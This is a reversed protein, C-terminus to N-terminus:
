FSSHISAACECCMGRVFARMGDPKSNKAPGRGAVDWPGADPWCTAPEARTDPERDLDEPVSTASTLAIHHGWHLVRLM